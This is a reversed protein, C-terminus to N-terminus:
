ILRRRRRIRREGVTTILIIIRTVIITSSISRYPTVSSGGISGVSDMHSRIVDAAAAITMRITVTVTVIVIITITQVIRLVQKHVRWQSEIIKIQTDM